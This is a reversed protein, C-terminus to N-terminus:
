LFCHLTQRAREKPVSAKTGPWWASPQRPWLSYFQPRWGEARASSGALLWCRSAPWALSGDQFGGTWGGWQRQTSCLSAKVALGPSIVFKHAFYIVTVIKLWWEQPQKDHLLLYSFCVGISEQLSGSWGLALVHGVCTEPVGLPHLLGASFSM